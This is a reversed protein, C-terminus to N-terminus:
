FRGSEVWGSKYFFVSVFSQFSHSFADSLTAEPGALPNLSASTANPEKEIAGTKGLGCTAQRNTQM